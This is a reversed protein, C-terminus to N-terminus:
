RFGFKDKFLELFYPNKTKSSKRRAKRESIALSINERSVSRESKYYSLKQSKSMDDDAGFWYSNRKADLSKGRRKKQKDTRFKRNGKKVM